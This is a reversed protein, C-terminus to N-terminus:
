GVNRVSDMKGRRTEYPTLIAARTVKMQSLEVADDYLGINLFIENIYALLNGILGDSVRFLIEPVHWDINSLNLPFPTDMQKEIDKLLALFKDDYSFPTLKILSLFRKSFEKNIGLLEEAEPLGCGVVATNCNMALDKLFGMSEIVSISRSYMLNQIDDVVVVRVERTILQKYTLRIVADLSLTQSISEGLEDLIRQCFARLSFPCPATIYLATTKEAKDESSICRCCHKIAATKGIGSPGLILRLPQLICLDVNRTICSKMVSAINDFVDTLIFLQNWTSVIDKKTRMFKEGIKRLIGTFM